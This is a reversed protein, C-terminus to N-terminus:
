YNIQSDVLKDHMLKNSTVDQVIGIGGIIKNKNIMPAFQVKVPTVKDSTYAKYVGEYYGIGGNLAIKLQKVINKDPLELMHLDVLKNIPTGIIESFKANCDVIIGQSDFHIIGIPANDFILSYFSKENEM